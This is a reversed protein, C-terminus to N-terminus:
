RNTVPCNMTHVLRQFLLVALTAPTELRTFSSWKHSESWHLVLDEVVYVGGPKLVPWLANLTAWIHNVAHSGDDVIM